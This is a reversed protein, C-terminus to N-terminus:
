SIAARRPSREYAEERGKSVLRYCLLVVVIACALTLAGVVTHTVTLTVMVPMPQPAGATAIRSWYAGIGLLFQVGVVSHLMVRATDLASVRAFRRRLTIATWITTALVALAGIMHPMISVDKHRFAAGFVAQLFVVGANLLAIAQISPRRHDEAQALDSCWWRSTFLALAIVTGFFIQGLCAHAVPMGYHLDLLVTLGGLVGQAIVAAVAALGLWRVWCREDSRWLWVALVITLIGVAAAIMRHTHEYVIGGVMPPTLSGYSLPWDPVSLAAQNSTVMAGAILLVLTCCAVFVAYGHLVRNFTGSADGM